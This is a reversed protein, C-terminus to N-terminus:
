GKEPRASVASHADPAPAASKARADRRIALAAAAWLAAAAAFGAVEGGAPGALIFGLAGAGLLAGGLLYFPRFPAAYAIPLFHLGVVIAMAPLLLEAHGLNVVLDAAVFLGVGEGISSWMIAKEAQKSPVVGEGPRRLVQAAALAILAFGLFPLGLIPGSWHLQFALTLAAFLAGFFGMIIAGWAGM